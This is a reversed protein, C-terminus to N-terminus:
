AARVDSLKAIKMTSPEHRRVVVLLDSYFAIARRYGAAKAGDTGLRKIADNCREIRHELDFRMAHTVREFPQM